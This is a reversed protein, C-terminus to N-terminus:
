LQFARRRFRQRVLEAATNVLFTMAFLTLAALFLVRYHTSGRVAEPLEVAINASLTRFGSFVNWDLIPTNGTAMLVIMTEGVARGLAVMVASFIGSMATPIVVRVATQWPTAGAGLSALRLHEPVSSLADEALTYLIPVIAFGMVFGVVLANRTDYTGLLSGRPDLGLAAFLQAAGWALGVSLVAGAAFRALDVRACRGRDWGRSVRRLAPNVFRGMLFATAMATAPLFLFTWGGAAGGRRGDLWAEIDGAFLANELLPGLLKAAWLGLPLMLLMLAFRQASGLRLGIRQPVLQWLYGGALFSLPVTAFSCLTAPLVERVFPAIVLAALFGLVVSPLGAMLEITSKIPVRLSADLFESTYIAALLALPIGFLMSYLTAKLTGFILPVLGFKPEFDDSGGTSQWVHEPGAYGEYWVPEVLASFGAEPHRPDLSWRWLGGSTLALLGDEKPTFAAALVRRGPEVSLSAIEIQSTAYVVRLSGDAHGIAVLRSRPSAAISSVEGGGGGLDHARVLLAGDATGADPPKIRFWASARGESDGAVITTKGILWGLASLSANPEPVLDLVEAQRAQGLDRADFRVLHGDPWALAAGTGAGWLLVRSPPGRGPEPAYPLLGESATVSEEGSMWNMRKRIQYLAVRQDSFLACVATGDSLSAHDIAVVDADHGTRLPEGLQVSLEQLRLNGDQMRQVISSGLRGRAGPALDRLGEPLESPSAFRTEFRVHGMRIVGGPFGLAMGDGAIDFSACTPGPGEVLTRREIREGSALDYLDLVGGGYLAWGLLQYEDAALHLPAGLDSAGPLALQAGKGVAAGRFIPVAVWLLFVAILCVAAITGIGGISILVRAFREAVRVSRRTVRPRRPRKRAPTPDM